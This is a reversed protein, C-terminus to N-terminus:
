SMYGTNDGGNGNLFWSWDDRLDMNVMSTWDPGIGQTYQSQDSALLPQFYSDISVVPEQEKFGDSEASSISESPTQLQLNSEPTAAYSSKRLGFHKGARLRLKGFYPIIAEYVCDQHDTPCTEPNRARSFDKIVRTAQAAVSGSVREMDSVLGEIIDWDRTEEDTDAAPTSGLLHLIIIIGAGFAEFDVIDCLSVMPRDKDRFIRYYKIMERASELAAVKSYDYKVRDTFSKLMFPLHLLKRVNHYWFKGLSMEFNDTLSDQRSPSHAWWRAPMTEKCHDLESEIELTKVFTMNQPCNNRDVIRGSLIGLKLMFPKLPNVEPSVAKIDEFGFHSEPVSYPLGLLLSFMRDHLWISAWLERKRTSQKDLTPARPRHHLGALQGFSMARRNALWSKGPKGINLYFKSQLMMCVIADVGSSALGEDSALLTEVPQVFRDEIGEPTTPLNTKSYDFTVPLQQMLYGFCLSTKAVMVPNTSAFSELMYDRFVKQDSAAAIPVGDLCSPMARWMLPMIYEAGECVLTLDNASPALAQLAKLVRPTKDRLFQRDNGYDDSVPVDIGDQTFIANDFLSLLPANKFLNQPSMASNVLDPPPSTKISSPPTSAYSAALSTPMLESQLSRLANAADLEPSGRNSAGNVDLKHLIQGIMGELEGVRDRM